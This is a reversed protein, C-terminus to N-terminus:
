AVEIKNAQDVPKVMKATGALPTTITKPPAIATTLPVPTGGSHLMKSRKVDDNREQISKAWM